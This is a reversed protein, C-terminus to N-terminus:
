KPCHREFWRKAYALILQGAIAGIGGPLAKLILDLIQLFDEKYKCYDLGHLQSKDFHVAALDRDIQDYIEKPFDM